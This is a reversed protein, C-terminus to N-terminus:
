RIRSGAALVAVQWSQSWLYDAIQSLTANM